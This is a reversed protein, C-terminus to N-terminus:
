AGCSAYNWLVTQDPAVGQRLGEAQRDRRREQLPRILLDLLVTCRRSLPASVRWHSVSSFMPGYRLNWSMNIPIRATASATEPSPTASAWSFGREPPSSTKRTGDSGGDYSPCGPPVKPVRWGRAGWELVSSSM